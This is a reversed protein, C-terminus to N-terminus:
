IMIEKNFKEVVVYEAHTRVIKEIDRQAHGPVLMYQGEQRHLEEFTAIDIPIKLLCSADSCECAMRLVVDNADTKAGQLLRKTSEKIRNNMDRFLQENIIRREKSYNLETLDSYPYDQSM